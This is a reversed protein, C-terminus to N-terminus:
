NRAIHEIDSDPLSVIRSLQNYYDNSLYPRGALLHDLYWKNPKLGEQIYEPNAIYTWVLRPTTSTQVEVQIRDYRVPYGEYPDMMSIQAEDKLHYILGEVTRNEVIRNEVTRNKKDNVSVEERMINASAAGPYAVSRKNFVLYFGSLTGSEISDFKVNRSVVRDPNMNSGYAFYYHEDPFKM